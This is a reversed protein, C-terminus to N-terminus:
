AWPATLTDLRHEFSKIYDWMGQLLDSFGRMAKKWIERIKRSIEGRFIRSQFCTAAGYRLFPLDLVLKKQMELSVM